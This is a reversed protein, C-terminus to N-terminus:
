TLRKLENRLDAILRQSLSFVLNDAPTQRATKKSIQRAAILQDNYFRLLNSVNSSFQRTDGFPHTKGSALATKIPEVWSEPVRITRNLPTGYKLEPGTNPRKGGHTM